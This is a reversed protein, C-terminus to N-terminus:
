MVMYNYVLCLHIVAQFSLYVNNFILANHNGVESEVPRSKRSM